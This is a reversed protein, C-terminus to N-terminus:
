GLFFSPAAAGQGARWAFVRVRSRDGIPGAFYSCANTKLPMLFALFIKTRRLLFKNVSMEAHNYHGCQQLACFSTAHNSIYNM